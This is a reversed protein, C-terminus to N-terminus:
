CLGRKYCPCTTPLLNAALPAFVESGVPDAPLIPPPAAQRFAPQAAGVDDRRGQADQQDGRWSGM